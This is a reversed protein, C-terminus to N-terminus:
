GGETVQSLLLSHAGDTVGDRRFCLGKGEPLRVCGPGRCLLM